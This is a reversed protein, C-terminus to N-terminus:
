TTVPRTNAASSSTEAMALRRAVWRQGGVDPVRAQSNWSLAPAAMAPWRGGGPCASPDHDAQGAATHRHRGLHAPASPPLRSCRWAVVSELM